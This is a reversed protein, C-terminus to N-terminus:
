PYKVLVYVHMLWIRELYLVGSLEKMHWDVEM